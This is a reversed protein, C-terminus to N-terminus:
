AIAYFIYSRGTDNLEGTANNVIFGSSHVDILDANTIEADTTNLRLYPDNGAVIGRESDFVFWNDAHTYSRALVFRAGNSFGCDIVRGSNGDGTYSGM